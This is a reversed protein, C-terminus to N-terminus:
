SGSEEVEFTRRTLSTVDSLNNGAGGIKSTILISYTHSLADTAAIEFWHDLHVFASGINVLSLVSDILHGRQWDIASANSDKLLAIVINGAGPGDTGTSFTVDAAYHFRLTNGSARAQFSLTATDNLGRVATTPAVTASYTYNTSGSTFSTSGSSTAVAQRNIWSGAGSIWATGNFTYSNNTAKDYASWGNTATYVTFTAGDECIAIKKADGTPSSGIIYADGITPSGPPANTTQNEVILRKGFNIAASLPISHASFTHNGFGTVWTGGSDRHYYTDVSEVYVFRGIGFTIFEWGRRTLVAVDASHGVWAGTAGAAVLYADGIAASPSSPPSTLTNDLVSYAFVSSQDSLKYRLGDFSVLCSIGDNATTTDTDDLHFVRGLFLIDVIVAGTDPDIAVLDTVDDDDALVYPMRAVAVNRLLTKSPPGSIPLAAVADHNIPM